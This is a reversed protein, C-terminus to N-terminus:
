FCSLFTSNPSLQNILFHPLFPSIPTIPIFHPGALAIPLPATIDPTHGSTSHHHFPPNTLNPIQSFFPFHPPATCRLPSLSPSLSSFSRFLTVHLNQISHAWDCWPANSQVRAPTHTHTFHAEVSSCVCTLEFVPVHRRNFTYHYPRNCLAFLKKKKTEKKKKCFYECVCGLINVCV